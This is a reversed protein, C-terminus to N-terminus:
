RFRAMPAASADRHADRALRSGSHLFYLSALLCAAAVLWNAFPNSAPLWGSLLGWSCSLALVAFVTGMAYSSRPTSTARWWRRSPTVPENAGRFVRVGVVLFALSYTCMVVGLPWGRLSVAILLVMAFLGLTAWALVYTVKATTSVMRLPERSRKERRRATESVDRQELTARAPPRMRWASDLYYAAAVTNVVILAVNIGNRPIAGAASGAAVGIASLALLAGIGCSSRFTATARWWARRPTVPEGAGRFTRVGVVWGLVTLALAGGDLLPSPVAPTLILRLLAPALFVALLYAVKAPVTTFRM